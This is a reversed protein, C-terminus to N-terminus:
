YITIIHAQKKKQREMDIGKSVHIHSLNKAKFLPILTELPTLSNYFVYLMQTYKSHNLNWVRSDLFAGVICIKCAFVEQVWIDVLCHFSVLLCTSVHICFSLYAQMMCHIGHDLTM